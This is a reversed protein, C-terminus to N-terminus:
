FPPARTVRATASCLAPVTFTVPHSANRCCRVVALWRCGCKLTDVGRIPLLAFASLRWGRFDIMAALPIHLEEVATSFYASAARLEHGAVKAAFGDGGYLRHTDRAFKFLMGVAVFKEGGAVGGVSVPQITKTATPLFKESIITRGYTSAVRAFDTALSGLRAYAAVAAQGAPADPRVVSAAAAAEAARM